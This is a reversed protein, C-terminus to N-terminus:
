RQHFIRSTVQGRAVVSGESDSVAVETMTSKKTRHVVTATAVLDTRAPSFFAVSLHTTAGGTANDEEVVGSASAAAGATDILTALMGGHIVGPATMIHDAMPLALTVQDVEADQVSLRLAQGVPSGTVVRHIWFQAIASIM